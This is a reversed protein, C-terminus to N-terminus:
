VDKSFLSNGREESVSFEWQNFPSLFNDDGQCRSIMIAHRRAKRSAAAWRRRRRAVHRGFEQWYWTKAKLM